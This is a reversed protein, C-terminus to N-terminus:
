CPRRRSRRVVSPILLTASGAAGLTAGAAVAASVGAGTAPPRPASSGTTPPLVPVVTVTWAIGQAPCVATVGSDPAPTPVQCATSRSSEIRAVGPAGARFTGTVTGGSGQTDVPLLVSPNDDTLAGWAYDPTGTVRIKVATGQQVTASSPGNDTLITAPSAARATEVAAVQALAAFALVGAFLPPHIAHWRHM